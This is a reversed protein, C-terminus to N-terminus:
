SKVIRAKIRSLSVPTIGLFSALYKQPVRQILDKHKKRFSIFREEPTLVTFFTLREMADTLFYQMGKIALTAINENARALQPFRKSDIILIISPEISEITMESPSNHLISNVSATRMTEKSLLITREEGASTTAFSRLLGKLVLFVNANIEGENVLIKETPIERIVSISLLLNIDEERLYPFTNQIERVFTNMNQEITQM